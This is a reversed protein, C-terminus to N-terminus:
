KQGSTGCGVGERFDKTDEETSSVMSVEHSLIPGQDVVQGTTENVFFIPSHTGKRVKEIYAKVSDNKRFKRADFPLTPLVQIGMQIDLILRLGTKKCRVIDLDLYGECVFIMGLRKFMTQSYFALDDDDRSAKHMLVANPDVLYGQAQRGDKLLVGEIKVVM